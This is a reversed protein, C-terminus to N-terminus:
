LPRATPRRRWSPRCPRSTMMCTTWRGYSAPPDPNSNAEFNQGPEQDLHNVLYDFCIPCLVLKHDSVIQGGRKKSMSGPTRLDHDVSRGESGRANHGIPGGVYRGGASNRGRGRRVPSDSGARERRSREEEYREEGSDYGGSGGQGRRAARGAGGKAARSKKDKAPSGHESDPGSDSDSDSDTDSFNLNTGKASEADQLLQRLSICSLHPRPHLPVRVPRPTLPLCVNLSRALLRPLRPM